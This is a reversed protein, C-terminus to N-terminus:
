PAFVATVTGAWAYPVGTRLPAADLKDWPAQFATIDVNYMAGKELFGPPIQVSTAGYVTFSVAYYLPSGSVVGVTVFYSTPAGLGPPSWSIVPTLGVGTQAHFADLGQIKPSRPPGLLPAIAGAAPMLEISEFSATTDYTESTGPQPVSVNVNLYYHRTEQWPSGLFQGYATPGYDVDVLAPSVVGAISIPLSQVLHPYDVPGPIATVRLIQGGPDVTAAPNVDKVLSAWQSGAIKANLSGTQPADTLTLSRTATAASDAVRAFRTAVSKSGLSAGSGLAAASFQAVFAVDGDAPDPWIVNKNNVSTAGAPLTRNFGLLVDENLQSAFFILRDGQGGWFGLPPLPGPNWPTLGDVSVTVPENHSTTTGGKGQLVASLDPSSTSLTLFSTYYRQPSNFGDGTGPVDSDFQLFYAGQPVGEISFSGDTAGGDPQSVPYRTYGSESLTWAAAVRLYPSYGPTSTEVGDDGRQVESFAGSVTRPPGAKGSCGLVLGILVIARVPM